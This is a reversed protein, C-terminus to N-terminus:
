FAMCTPGTAQLSCLQKSFNQTTPQQAEKCPHRLSPNESTSSRLGGLHCVAVTEFGSNGQGDPSQATKTGEKDEVAEM